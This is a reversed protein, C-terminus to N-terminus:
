FLAKAAQTTVATLFPIALYGLPSIAIALTGGIIGLAKDDAEVIQETPEDFYMTKIVKLYYFAGIVSAAVGIVALPFLGAAIAANFVVLKGWFGFLPPIGALSFMFMAFVAALMPRSKSLGAIDAMGEKTEGDSGKLQMLCIFSGLTMAVYIALYVLTGAVGQATGAALGILLFGINNISSYALLRKLNQQGIAGVAGIIISMLAVVIMIQQWAMVQNGFAVITIRILLATAAVKAASAFFATVPTPAGEYVDPTWMHFPAASIKFALGSLVFILGFLLGMNLDGAMSKGIEVFNTTGSFGYLLSMGYLLIGSALAGLVFYKLGAEASRGDNRAFSALVYAALSNLELGIYLTMLDTASVMVGMGVAALLVLVPYEARMAGMKGLANPAIILSIAAAFYILVKAFNSFADNRFLGDFALADTGACFAQVAFAGAGVLAAVALISVLRGDDSRWAALLLLALSSFSLILEPSVLALSTAFDM